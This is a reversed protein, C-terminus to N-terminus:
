CATLLSASQHQDFLPLTNRALLVSTKVRVCLVSVTALSRIQMGSGPTTIAIIAIDLDTPCGSAIVRREHAM